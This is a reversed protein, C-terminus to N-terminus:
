YCDMIWILTHTHTTCRICKSHSYRYLSVLLKIQKRTPTICECHSHIPIEIQGVLRCAFARRNVQSPLRMSNENSMERSEHIQIKNPSFQVCISKNIHNNIEHARVHFDRTLVTHILIQINLQGRHIFLICQIYHIIGLPLHKCNEMTVIKKEM